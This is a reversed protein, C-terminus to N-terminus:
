FKINNALNGVIKMFIPPFFKILLAVVIIGAFLDAGTVKKNSRM